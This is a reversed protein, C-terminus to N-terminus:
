RKGNAVYFYTYPLVPIDHAEFVKKMLIKDMGVSAGLIGSSTYPINALELLGQVSGDEGNMGHMAPIVCDLKIFNEKNILGKNKMVIGPKNPMICGMDLNNKHKDFEAYINTDVLKDDVYWEGDSHIYIPYVEYKSKDINNILQIGTVISVDHECTVGGFIVGIKKM